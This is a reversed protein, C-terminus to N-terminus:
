LRLKKDKDNIKLQEAALKRGQGRSWKLIYKFPYTQSDAIESVWAIKFSSM